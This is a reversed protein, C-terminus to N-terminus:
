SELSLNKLARFVKNKLYIDQRRTKFEAKEQSYGIAKLTYISMDDPIFINVLKFNRKAWQIITTINKESFYSNFPSVGILVHSRQKYISKSNKGILYIKFRKEIELEKEFINVM